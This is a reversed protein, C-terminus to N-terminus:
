DVFVPDEKGGGRAYGSYLANAPLAHLTFSSFSERGGMTAALDGFQELTPGTLTGLRGTAADLGFQGVGLLGARQIANGVYDGADWNKKWEPVDGGGQLVGKLMDSALMIPVYSTLAMAPSYNGNKAEHAVRALTTHQFAYVFQKLHSILMFHPDNMWIPKDAADPRLIAGDVWQNIAKKIKDNIVLDGNTRVMIDAKTLGLEALRRASHENGKTGHEILFLRAAETAGVRVSTNTQEVLNFRFFLDNAKRAFDGTVGQTYMSGIAHQLMANDITGMDQAFRTQADMSTDGRLGKPIEKIVRAFTKFAQKVGGGNVVIGMPDIAMSFVALPLLRINQYVVMNGMIRRANPNLDDGLTGNVGEVFDKADKIQRPTAGEAKAQEYIKELGSNDDAFRNAWEARRTAQTIYSNMTMHLNKSMFPAADKDDIFSLVRKNLSSMGPRETIVQIESGDNAILKNYTEEPNTWEPYKRAMDMFADKNKSLYNADWRRPFYDKGFGMDGVDVGSKHMYNFMDDLVKRVGIQITRAKTSTAKTGNHLAELAEHLDSETAGEISNAYQNLFEARKLRAAPLWGGDGGEDVGRKKILDALKALSPVGSDRLNAAGAGLVHEAMDVMPATMEKIKSIGYKGQGQEMLAARVAAHDGMSQAYEGSSFYEMVHLAREDNTWIGMLKLFKEKLQTFLNKPADALKFDHGMSYFQFLYASREEPDSLQGLAEPSHALLERLQKMVHPTNALKTLVANVDDSGHTRMQKFFAHLAEHYATGTPNLASVSVRIIDTGMKSYFEGAHMLDAFEVQVSNGLMTHIASLVQKRGKATLLNPNSAPTADRTVRPDNGNFDGNNGTASKVDGPEFAVLEQIHDSGNNFNLVVGDYGQSKAWRTFEVAASPGRKAMEAKFTENVFYPNKVAAYVPMINQGDRGAVTGDTRKKIGAYEGATFHDSTLYVGQGLWGFDKRRKHGRAFFSIDDKSGHYYVVPRGGPGTPGHGGLFAPYLLAGTGSERRLGEYQGGGFTRQGRGGLSETGRDNGRVEGQVGGGLSSRTWDGYWEKFEATHTQPNDSEDVKPPLISELSYKKTQMGYAVDPNRVLETLRELITDMTKASGETAVEDLLADMARQLGKADTSASIEKLLAPDGSAARELFAAKKAAVLKPDPTGEKPKPKRAEQMKALVSRKEATQKKGSAYHNVLTGDMNVRHQLEGKGENEAAAMHIQEDKGVEGKGSIEKERAFHEANEAREYLMVVKQLKEEVTAIADAVGEAEPDEAYLEKLQSRLEKGQRKLDAISMETPDNLGYGSKVTDSKKFAKIADAATIDQKGIRGIVTKGSVAFKGHEAMLQGLGAMYAEAMRHLRSQDAFDSQPMRKMMTKTLKVADVILGDKVDIRSPSDGHKDAELRVAQLDDDSMGDANEFDAVEVLGHGEKQHMAVREAIKADIEGQVKESVAKIQAEDGSARAATIEEAYQKEVAKKTDTKFKKFAPVKELITPDEASSVFKASKGGDPGKEAHEKMIREAVSENGFEARYAGPAKILSRAQKGGGVHKKTDKVEALPEGDQDVMEHASETARDGYARDLAEFVSKSKPGFDKEIQARVVGDRFSREEPTGGQQTHVGLAWEILKSAYAEVDGKFPVKEDQAAKAIVERLGTQNKGEAAVIQANRFYAAGQDPSNKMLPGMASLVQTAGESGLLDAMQVHLLAADFKDGAGLAKGIQRIIPAIENIHEASIDNRDVGHKAAIADVVAPMVREKIQADFGSFDESKKTGDDKAAPLGKRVGDAFSKIRGGVAKVGNVAKDITAVKLQNVRSEPDTLATEIDARQQDNLTGKYLEEAKAKVWKSSEGLMEKVREPAAAAYEALDGLPQGKIIRDASDDKPASLGQLRSAFDDPAEYEDGEKSESVRAKGRALDTAWVYARNSSNMLLGGAQKLKAKIEAPVDEAEMLEKVKAKAAATQEGITAGTEDMRTRVSEPIAGKLAEAGSKLSEWAPNLADTAGALAKRPTAHVLDAAAGISGMAGGAVAGGVINEKISDWDLERQDNSATQKLADSAGELGGEALTGGVLNRGIITKTPVSTLAKAGQGMIKSGVMGPVIGQLAASGAGGVIQRSLREGAGMAMADPDNLQKMAVDGAEIPVQAATAALMAPVAAGGTLAAAGVGAAISPASGGLLGTAYRLGSRLGDVDKYSTVSPAEQQARLQADRAGAYQSQAFEDFGMAEGATGAMARLGGGIGTLGSNLGRGFEDILSGDDATVPKPQAVATRLSDAIIGM